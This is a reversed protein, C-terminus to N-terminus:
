AHRLLSQGGMAAPQPQGLLALLTPAVDALRGDGLSSGKPGGLLMCPVPNLTHATHPEGTEPDVMMECNGHDATIIAAGGMSAVAEAVRGLCGDVTEVAEIAAPLSGTHGVMDPNAFNILIFDFRGSRVAEVFKDCLTTASMSPQLDYTAVKPSPVMIREERAYPEERGGNFFFTVHPYKETEAMRLQALGAKAIVEGMLDDMSQPPFLTILLRDLGASYSTMGAAVALKPARGRDFGDFAPDVLADLIERIRDARFNLSLLADGPAMGGYGEIVQPLVFEDGKDNAYAASLAAEFSAVRPGAAHAIAEYALAVREWRHDRDMAYYRGSITAPVIGPDGKLGAMIAAVHAQGSRPATDRGDTFIHLAVELGAKRLLHAVSVLHDQHGHVGGPSALGVLHVRGSGSQAKGVFERFPQSAALSGDKLAAGIRPLDQMVVRGAGLNMHGVESNGFQEEPLGVNPGDTRLFSHPLSAWLRDFNPTRAQRVANNAEEERWGWGDLVCLVVPRGSLGESM